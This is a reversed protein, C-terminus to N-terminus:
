RKREATQKESRGSPVGREGGRGPRKEKCHGGVWGKEKHKTKNKKKNKKHFNFKLGVERVGGWKRASPVEKEPAGQSCRFRTPPNRTQLEGNSGRV